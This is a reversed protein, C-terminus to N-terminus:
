LWLKRSALIGSFVEFLPSYGFDSASMFEAELSLQAVTPQIKSKYAITGGALRICLGTFSPRTKSCTAWDSDVYGHLDMADHLPQGDMLLNHATSNICPFNALPLSENPTSRWFHLGNDKITITYKLRAFVRNHVASWQM